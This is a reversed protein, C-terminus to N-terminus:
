KTPTLCLQASAPVCGETCVPEGNINLAAGGKSVSSCLIDGYRNALCSGPGCVPTRYRDLVIGGDPPSCKVEGVHDKLCQSGAPGCQVNGYRDNMCGAQSSGVEPKCLMTLALLTTLVDRTSISM